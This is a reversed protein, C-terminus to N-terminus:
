IWFRPILVASILSHWYVPPPPCIVWVVYRKYWRLFICPSARTTQKKTIFRCKLKKLRFLKRKNDGFGTEVLTPNLKFLLLTGYLEKIWNDIIYETIFVIIGVYWNKWSHKFKKLGIKLFAQFCSSASLFHPPLPQYIHSFHKTNHLAYYAEGGTTEFSFFVGSMCVIGNQLKTQSYDKNLYKCM